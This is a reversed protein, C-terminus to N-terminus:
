ITCLLIKKSIDGNLTWCKKQYRDIEHELKIIRGKSSHLSNKLDCNENRLCCIEESVRKMAKIVFDWKEEGSVLDRADKETKKFLNLFIDTAKQSDIDQSLSNAQSFIRPKVIGESSQESASSMRPIKAAQQSNPSPTGQSLPRKGVPTSM